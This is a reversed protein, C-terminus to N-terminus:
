DQLTQSEAMQIASIDIEKVELNERPLSFYFTSGKGLESELWVKGGYMEIIKKILTLGVGTSEFEDRPNLTQFIQFIKEFHREDIGPGNDAVRFIHNSEDTKSCVMIKGQPKDMYKIANSLLNQFVQEIRTKEIMITPLECNVTISIHEPPALLDIIGAVSENLDVEVFEERVRGVRSYQLIGEILKHMRKVRSELLHVLEKGDEDFLDGYDAILWDSLSGIARLPAKLDHSVVYAFDKLEQNVSQLEKMLEARRNEAKVRETVDRVISLWAPREQYEIEDTIIEVNILRGSKTRHTYSNPTVTNKTDINEEVLLREEPLHLDYPTLNKLEDNTYGYTEVVAKNSDVFHKTEKDFIFIQDPIQNFLSFYKRENKRLENEVQTRFHIEEQLKENITRLEATREDVLEELNYRHKQLEEEAKKREKIEEKLTKNLSSLKAANEQHLEKAKFVEDFARDKEGVLRKVRTMMTHFAQKLQGIEDSHDLEIEVNLDGAAVSNAVNVVENLPSIISSSLKFSIWGLISIGIFIMTFILKLMNGFNERDTTFANAIATQYHHKNARLTIKLTNYQNTMAKLDSVLSENTEESIMRIATTQALRFYTAFNQRLESLEHGQEEYLTSEADLRNLVSDCLIEIEQIAASDATAVADQMGRQITALSEEIDRELELLPYYNKQIKKTLEANQLNVVLIILLVSLFTLGAIIPMVIIRHRIKLNHLLKM